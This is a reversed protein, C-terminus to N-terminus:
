KTIILNAIFALCILGLLYIGIILFSIGKNQFKLKNVKFEIGFFLMSIGIFPIFIKGLRNAHYTSILTEDEIIPYEILFKKFFLIGVFLCGAFLFLTNRIIKRKEFGFGWWWDPLTYSIFFNVKRTVIHFFTNTPDLSAEYQRKHRFLRLYNDSQGNEDFKKLVRHYLSRVADPTNKNEEDLYQLYFNHYDLDIREFDTKSDALLQVESSGGIFSSCGIKVFVNGDNPPRFDPLALSSIQVQDDIILSTVNHCEKFSIYKIKGSRIVLNKIVSRDLKLTDINCGTIIVNQITSSQLDLIHITSNDLQIDLINGSVDLNGKITDSDFVLTLLTDKQLYFYLNEFELDDRLEINKFEFSFISKDNLSPEKDTLNFTSLSSDRLEDITEYKGEKLKITTAQAFVQAGKVMVSM